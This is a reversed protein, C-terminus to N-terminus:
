AEDEPVTQIGMGASISTAQGKLDLYERDPENMSLTGKPETVIFGAIGEETAFGLMQVGPVCPVNRGADSHAKDGRDHADRAGNWAMRM